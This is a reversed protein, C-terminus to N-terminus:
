RPTACSDKDNGKGSYMKAFDYSTVSYVFGTKISCVVVENNTEKIVEVETGKGNGEIQIFIESM